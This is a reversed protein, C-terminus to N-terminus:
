VSCRNYPTDNLMSKAIHDVVRFGLWNQEYWRGGPTGGRVIQNFLSDTSLPIVQLIRQLCLWIHCLTSLSPATKGKGKKQIEAVMMILFQLILEM